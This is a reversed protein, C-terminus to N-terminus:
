ESSQMEIQITTQDGDRTVTVGDLEFGQAALQDRIEAEIDAESLGADVTITAQRFHEQVQALLSGSTNAVIPEIAPEAGSGTITRFLVAVESAATRDPLGTLGYTFTEGMQNFNLSVESYGLARVARTVNNAMTVTEPSLGSYTVSYGTVVSYSFPVLTVFLFACIAVALSVSTKPHTRVTRFVTTMISTEKAEQEAALAEIRAKLFALPTPEGTPETRAAKLSASLIRESQSADNTPDNAEPYRM